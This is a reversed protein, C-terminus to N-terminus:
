TGPPPGTMPGMNPPVPYSRVSCYSIVAAMAATADYIDSSCQQDVATSVAHLILPLDQPQCICGDTSCEDDISLEVGLQACERLQQMGSGSLVDLSSAAHSILLYNSLLLISLLLSIPSGM